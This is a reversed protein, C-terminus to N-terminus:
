PHTEEKPIAVIQGGTLAERIIAARSLADQEQEEFRRGALAHGRGGAREGLRRAMAASEELARLAVWLAEELSQSQAAMLSDPTFAHGVRCRYRLLKGEQAEWLVGHCDPCSFASPTGLRASELANKDLEAIKVEQEESDPVADESEGPMAERVLRTLIPAIEALPVVFDMEVNEVASRPMSSFLASGPEQAIALGGRMKIAQLGATGDDLMGTLVVGIVQRGYSVAASRFLTDIAPRHGNEAPGRTLRMTGRRVLLHHDPPAIYIEGAKIAQGDAPQMARLAGRRNLIAPLVSTGYPAVHLVIFVAAPFDKPLASTLEMLAEVGGASAGIVIVRNM